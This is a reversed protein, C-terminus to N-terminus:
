KVNIKRSIKEADSELTVLYIGSELHSIEITKSGLESVSLRDKYVVQGLMNRILLDYPQTYKSTIHINFHGDNPNPFVSFNTKTEKESDLGIILNGFNLRVAALQTMWGWAPSADNVYVFNSVAPQISERNQDRAATFYAGSSAGGVQEWGVAYQANTTLIAPPFLPLTIWNGLMASNITTPHPSVGVAPTTIAGAITSAADDWYWVKPTIISGVNTSTNAVLISVSTALVSGNTRANAGVTMLSAWRDGNNGGGVFNAPGADGNYPGLDKALVSDSVIFQQFGYATSSNQNQAASLARFHATYYGNGTNVYPGVNFTNVQLQPVPIGLIASQIDVTGIGSVGWYNSDQVVEVELGMGTQANSGTNLVTGEFNLPNLVLQPVITFVPNITTASFNIKSDTLAIANAPGSYLKVDDIMWYYHSAGTQRWRLYITRQNALQASVDIRVVEAPDSSPLPTPTNPGRGLMADYTGWNIGDSSVEVVLQDLGSCCYNSSQEWQLIVSPTSPITIAPSTFWTDMARPGGPPFPTNFYGSPLSMFGNFATTSNIATVNQSYQGGPATNAWIWSGTNGAQNIVTWGSPIQNAFDESYLIAGSSKAQYDKLDKEVLDGIITTDVKKFNAIAEKYAKLNTQSLGNLYCIILVLFISLQAKM